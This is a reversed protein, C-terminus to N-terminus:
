YYDSLRRAGNTILLWELSGYGFPVGDVLVTVEFSFDDIVKTEWWYWFREDPHMMFLWDNMTWAYDKEPDSHDELVDDLLLFKKCFESPFVQQYLVVDLSEHELFTRDFSTLIAECSDIVEQAQRECIVTFKVLSGSVNKIEKKTLKNLEIEIESM